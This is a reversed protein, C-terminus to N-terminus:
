MSGYTYCNLPREVELLDGVTGEVAVRVAGHALTGGEPEADRERPGVHADDTEVTVAREEHVEAREAGDGGLRRLVVGEQDPVVFGVLGRAALRGRGRGARAQRGDGPAGADLLRHLHAGLLLQAAGVVPNQSLVAREDHGDLHGGAAGLALEVAVRDAVGAAEPLGEGPQRRSLNRTYLVAVGFGVPPVSSM